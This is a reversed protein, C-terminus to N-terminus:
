SKGIGFCTAECKKSSNPAKKVKKGGRSKNLHKKVENDLPVDLKEFDNKKMIVQLVIVGFSYVDTKHSGKGTLNLCLTNM